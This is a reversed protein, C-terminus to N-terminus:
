MSVGVLPNGDCIGAVYEHVRAGSGVVSEQLRAKEDADAFTTASMGSHMLMRASAWIGIAGEM